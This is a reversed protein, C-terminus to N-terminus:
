AYSPMRSTSLDRPSPSTYLLCANAAPMTASMVAAHTMRSVILAIFLGLGLLQGSIGAYLVSNFLCTGAAFGFLGIMMVKKRGIRDSLRGWIPSALFVTLSSAAIITTIQLENLGIERGIPALIPFLVTFGMGVCVLSVLLTRRAYITPFDTTTNMETSPGAYRDRICMESGM